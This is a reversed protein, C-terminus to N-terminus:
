IQLETRFLSKRREEKSNERETQRERERDTQRDTQREREREREREGITTKYTPLNYVIVVRVKVIQKTKPVILGQPKILYLMINLGPCTGYLHQM